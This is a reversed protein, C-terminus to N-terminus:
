PVKVSAVKAATMDATSPITPVSIVGPAGVGVTATTTHIHADFDSVLQDFATKMDNFATVFDGDGNLEIDGGPTLKVTTGGSSKIELNDPDFSSIKNTQPYCMPLAFADSLAHKRVDDHAKIGGQELWTDISRECFILLVHDGADIPFTIAFDTSQQFRVPVNKLVPLSVVTEDLTTKIVPQVDALQEAPDFSIVEAPM